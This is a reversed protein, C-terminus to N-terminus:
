EVVGVEGLVPQFVEDWTPPPAPAAVSSEAAILRKM